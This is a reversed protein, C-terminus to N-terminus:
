SKEETSGSSTLKLGEKTSGSPPLISPSCFVLATLSSLATTLYQSPLQAQVGAEGRPTLLEVKQRKVEEEPFSPYYYIDQLATLLLTYLVFCLALWM